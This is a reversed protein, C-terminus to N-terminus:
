REPPMGATVSSALEQVAGPSTTLHIARQPVPM